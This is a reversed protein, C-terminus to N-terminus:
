KRELLMKWFPMIARRELILCLGILNPYPIVLIDDYFLSCCYGAVEQELFAPDTQWSGDDFFFAMSRIEIANFLLKPISFVCIGIELASGIRGQSKSGFSSKKSFSKRM